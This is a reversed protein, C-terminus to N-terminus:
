GPVWLPTPTSIYQWMVLDSFVFIKSWIGTAEWSSPGWSGKGCGHSVKCMDKNSFVARQLGHSCYAQRVLLVFSWLGERWRRSRVSRGGDNGSHESLRLLLSTATGHYPLRKVKKCIFNIMYYNVLSYYGLSLLLLFRTFLYGAFTLGIFGRQTSAHSVFLMFCNIHFLCDACCLCFFLILLWLYTVKIGFKATKVSAWLTVSTWCYSLFCPARPILLRTDERYHEV